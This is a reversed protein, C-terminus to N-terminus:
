QPTLTQPNACVELSELKAPKASVVTFIEEDVPKVLLTGRCKDTAVQCLDRGGTSSVCTVSSTNYRTKVLDQVTGISITASPEFALVLAVVVILAAAGGAYVRRRGELLWARIRELQNQGEM